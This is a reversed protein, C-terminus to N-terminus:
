MKISLNLIDDRNYWGQFQLSLIQTASPDLFIFVSIKIIYKLKFTKLKIEFAM